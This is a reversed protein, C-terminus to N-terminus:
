SILGLVSLQVIHKADRLHPPLLSCWYCCCSCFWHWCCCCCSRYFSPTAWSIITKEVDVVLAFVFAVAGFVVFVLFVVFQCSPLLCSMTIIVKEVTFLWQCFSWDPNTLLWKIVELIHRERQFSVRTCTPIAPLFYLSNRHVGPESFSFNIRIFNDHSFDMCHM